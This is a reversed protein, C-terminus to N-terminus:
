SQKATFAYYKELLEEQTIHSKKNKKLNDIAPIFRLNVHHGIIEPLVGNRWGDSISYVHDLHWDVGKIEFNEILTKSVRNTFKSVERWYKEYDTKALQWDDYSMGVKTEVMKKIAEESKEKGLSALSLKEFWEDNELTSALWKAPKKDSNWTKSNTQKIKNKTDHSHKYEGPKRNNGFERKAAAKKYNEKHEKSRIKGLNSKSIKKKYEETQLFSRDIKISHKISNKLCLHYFQRTTISFIQCIEDIEYNGSTSLEFFKTIDIRSSVKDYKRM